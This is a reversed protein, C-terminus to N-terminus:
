QRTLYKDNSTLWKIHLTTCPCSFNTVSSTVAGTTADTFKIRLKGNEVKWTLTKHMDQICLFEDLHFAEGTGNALFVLKLHYGQNCISSAIIWSGVLCSADSAGNLNGHGAFNGGTGGTAFNNGNGGGNPFNSNDDQGIPFSPGNNAKAFIPAGGGKLKSKSPIVTEEKACSIIFLMFIFISFVGCIYVLSKKNMNTQTLHNFPSVFKGM